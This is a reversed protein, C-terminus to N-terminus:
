YLRRSAMVASGSRWRTGKTIWGYNVIVGERLSSSRRERQQAQKRFQYGLAHRYALYEQVREAMTKTSM